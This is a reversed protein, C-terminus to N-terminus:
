RTKLRWGILIFIEGNRWDPAHLLCTVKRREAGTVNAEFKSQQSNTQTDVLGKLEQKENQKFDFPRNSGKKALRTHPKLTPM